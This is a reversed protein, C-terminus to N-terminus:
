FGLLLVLIGILWCYYAFKHFDGTLVTKAVTKLAFYGVLASIAIGVLVVEIPEQAFDIEGFKVLSAGLIALISLLFSFKYATKKDIKRAIAASVTIGSRSIGPVISVAQATGILLSDISSLKRGPKFFKTSYLIFGNIVLAIGVTFLSSFLSEFFSKFALGLLAVPLSGIIIYTITKKSEEDFKLIRGIEKRLFYIVAILTGLHLMVDFSVSAKIGFLQQIIVLHGSSSIPLWEALGQVIGLIVAELINVM